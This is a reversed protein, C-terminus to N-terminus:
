SDFSPWCRASVEVAPLTCNRCITPRGCYVYKVQHQLESVIHTAVDLFRKIDSVILGSSVMQYNVSPDDGKTNMGSTECDIALFKHFESGKSM